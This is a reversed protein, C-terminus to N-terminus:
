GRTTLSNHTAARYDAFEAVQIPGITHAEVVMGPGRAHHQGEAVTHCSSSRPKIQRSAAFGQHPEGAAKDPRLIWLVADVFLRNDEGSRGRDGKKGPVLNSIRVWQVNTLERRILIAEMLNRDQIVIVAGLSEGLTLLAYAFQNSSPRTLPFPQVSRCMIITERSKATGM